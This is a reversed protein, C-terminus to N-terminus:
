ARPELARALCELSARLDSEEFLPVGYRERVAASAATWDYTLTVDTGASDPVLTYRWFYSLVEEGPPAVQWAIRRDTEFEIVHNDTRYRVQRDPLDFSMEMTFVDGVSGVVGPTVADHVTGGPDIRHHQAPDRLVAFVEAPTAPLHSTRSIREVDIMITVEAPDPHQAVTYPDVGSGPPDPLLLIRDAPM